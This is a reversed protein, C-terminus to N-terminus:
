LSEVKNRDVSEIYFQNQSINIKAYTGRLVRTQRYPETRRTCMLPVTDHSKQCNKQWIRGPCCVTHVPLFLKAFKKTKM